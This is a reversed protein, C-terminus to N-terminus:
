VKFSYLNGNDYKIHAKDQKSYILISDGKIDNYLIPNNAGYQYSNLHYYKESFKDMNMFRGLAPDYNRNGYDYMNLGM